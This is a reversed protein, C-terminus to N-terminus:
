ETKLLTALQHIKDHIKQMANIAREPEQEYAERITKEFVNEMIKGYLFGMSGLQSKVADQAKKNLKFLEVVEKEIEAKKLAQVM